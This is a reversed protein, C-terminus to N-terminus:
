HPPLWVGREIAIEIPSRDDEVREVQSGGRRRGGIKARLQAMIRSLRFDRVNEMRAQGGDRGAQHNGIGTQMARDQVIQYIGSETMPGALGLWRAPRSADRHSRDGPQRTRPM